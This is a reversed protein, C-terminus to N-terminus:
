LFSALMSALMRVFAGQRPENRLFPSSNKIVSSELESKIDNQLKPDQTVIFAQVEVDRLFSRHGYNSSGASMVVPPESAEPTPPRLWLGKAHFTWERRAWQRLNIGRQVLAEARAQFLNPVWAAIGRAGYWANSSKAAGVVVASDGWRELNIELERTPNLYGAALFLCPTNLTNESFPKTLDLTTEYEHTVQAWTVQVSPYVCTCPYESSQCTGINLSFLKSVSKRLREVYRDQRTTFYIKSLNAGSLTVSDDFIYVKAHFVSRLERIRGGLSGGFYQFFKETLQTLPHSPPPSPFLYCSVQNHPTFEQVLTQLASFNGGHKEVATNNASAGSPGRLNRNGDVIVTLKLRPRARLVNRLEELLDQSMDDDGLYLTSLVIRREATKIGRILGEYFEKPSYQFSVDSPDLALGQSADLSDRTLRSLSFMTFNGEKRFMADFRSSSAQFVNKVSSFLRYPPSSGAWVRPFFRKVVM